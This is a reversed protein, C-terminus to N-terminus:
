AHAARIRSAIVDALAKTEAADALAKAPTARGSCV